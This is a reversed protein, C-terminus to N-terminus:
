KGNGWERNLLEFNRKALNEVPSIKEIITKKIKTYDYFIADIKSLIERESINNTPVVYDSLEFRRMLGYAKENFALLISPIGMSLAFITPHMRHSILLDLMGIIGKIEQPGYDEKILYFSGKNQISISRRIDEGVLFDSHEKRVKGSSHPIFIVSANYERVIVDVVESITKVIRHYENENLKIGTARAICIGIVKKRSSKLKNIDIDEFNLIEKIREESATELLFAPDATVYINKPLVGERKLNEYSIEDRLTVLAANEVIFKMIFRFPWGFPALTQAFMVYEKRLLIAVLFTYLYALYRITRKLFTDDYYITFVEVALSIYLDALLYPKLKPFLKLMINSYLSKSFKRLPLFLFVMSIIGVAHVPKDLLHGIIEVNKFRKEIDFIEKQKNPWYLEIYIKAHPFIVQLNEIITILIAISGKNSLVVGAGTTILIRELKRM